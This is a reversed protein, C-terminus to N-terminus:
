LLALGAAPTGYKWCQQNYALQCTNGKLDRVTRLVAIGRMAPSVTHKQQLVLTFPKRYQFLCCAFCTFCTFCYHPVPLLVENGQSSSPFCQRNIESVQSPTAAQISHACYYPVHDTQKAVSLQQHRQFIACHIAMSQHM